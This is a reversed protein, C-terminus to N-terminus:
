ATPTLMSFATAARIIVGARMIGRFATEDYDFYHDASAKFDIDKGIGVICGQPDGFVAVVAAAQDNSPAADALVVPYGLISGIAGPAGVPAELATQFIPRKNSDKIQCMKAVITPHMWWRCPRRLVSSAVTTLCRLVDEFELKSVESNGAAANAATGGVFIGTYAGDTSDNTGDAAFCSWDLRYALAQAFDSLVDQVVDLDGEEILSNSVGLLVGINKLVCSVSTGAKTADESLQTAETALWIAAARATKVPFTTTKKGVRRVGLSSWAGYTGLVDYIDKALDTTIYTSGPTAGQYLATRQLVDAVDKHVPRNKVRCIEAAIQAMKVENSAIRKLPNGHALVTELRMAAQARQVKELILAAENHKNRVEALEALATRTSTQLEDVTKVLNSQKTEIAEVGALVKEEFTQDPKM